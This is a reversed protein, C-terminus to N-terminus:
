INILKKESRLTNTMNEKMRHYKYFSLYFQHLQITTADFSAQAVCHIHSPRVLNVVVNGPFPCILKWYRLLKWYLLFDLHFFPPPNTM